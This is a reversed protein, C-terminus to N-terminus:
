HLRLKKRKIAKNFGELWWANVFQECLYYLSENKSSEESGWYLLFHFLTDKLHKDEELCRNKITPIDEGWASFKSFNAGLLFAEIAVDYCAEEMGENMIVSSTLQSSGFYRAVKEKLDKVSLEKLVSREYKIQKERKKLDFNMIVTM